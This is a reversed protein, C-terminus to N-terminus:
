DNVVSGPLQSLQALHRTSVRQAEVPKAADQLRVLCAESPWIMAVSNQTLAKEINSPSKMTEWKWLEHDYCKQIEAQQQELYKIRAGLAQGRADLWVYMLLLVVTAMLIAAVPLPFVFGDTKKRRNRKAM